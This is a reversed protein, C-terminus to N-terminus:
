WAGVWSGLDYLSAALACVIMGGVVMGRLLAANARMLLQKEVVRAMPRGCRLTQFMGRWREFDIM